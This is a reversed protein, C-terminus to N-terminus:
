KEQFRDDVCSDQRLSGSDAGRSRRRRPMSGRRKLQLENTFSSFRFGGYGLARRITARNQRCCHRLAPALDNEIIKGCGIVSVAFPKLRMGPKASNKACAACTHIWRAPTSSAKTAGFKM